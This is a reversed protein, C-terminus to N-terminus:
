RRPGEQVKGAEDILDRLSQWTPCDGYEAEISCARAILEAARGIDGDELADVAEAALQEAEAADKAVNELWDAGTRLDDIWAERYECRMRDIEDDDLDASEGQRLGAWEEWDIPRPIPGDCDEGQELADAVQRLASPDCGDLDLMTSGHETTWECRTWGYSQADYEERCRAALEDLEEQSQDVVDVVDTDWDEDWWQVLLRAIQEPDHCGDAAQFPTSHEEGDDDLFTVPSAAQSCDCCFDTHGWTYNIRYTTM